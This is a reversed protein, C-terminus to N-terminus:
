VREKDKGCGACGSPVVITRPPTWERKYRWSDGLVASLLAFEPALLIRLKGVM